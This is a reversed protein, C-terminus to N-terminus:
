PSGFGRHQTARPSTAIDVQRHKWRPSSRHGPFNVRLSSNMAHPTFVYATVPLIIHQVQLTFVLQTTRKTLWLLETTSTPGPGVSINVLMCVADHCGQQTKTISPLQTGEDFAAPSTPSLQEWGRAHWIEVFYLMADVAKVSVNTGRQAKKNNTTSAASRHGLGVAQSELDGVNEPTLARGSM